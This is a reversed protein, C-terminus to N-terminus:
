WVFPTQKKQHNKKKKNKRKNKWSLLSLPSDATSSVAFSFLSSSFLTSSARSHARFASIHLNFASFSAWCCLWLSDSICFLYSLSTRSVISSNGVLSAQQRNESLLAPPKYGLTNLPFDILNVQKEEVIWHNNNGQWYKWSCSRFTAWWASNPEEVFVFPSSCSRRWEIVESIICSRLVTLSAELSFVARASRKLHWMGASNLSGYLKVTASLLRIWQHM